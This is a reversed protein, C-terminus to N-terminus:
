PNLSTRAGDRLRVKTDGPAGAIGADAWPFKVGKEFLSEVEVAGAASVQPL